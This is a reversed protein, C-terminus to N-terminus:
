ACSRDARRKRPFSIVEATAHENATIIAAAGMRQVTHGGHMAQNFTMAIEITDKGNPVTVIVQNGEVKAALPGTAVLRM